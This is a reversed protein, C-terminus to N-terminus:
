GVAAAAARIGTAVVHTRGRAVVALEGLATVVLLRGPGLRAIGTAPSSLTAFPKQRASGIKSAALSQAGICCNADFVLTAADLFVPATPASQVGHGPLASPQSEVTQATEVGVLRTERPPRGHSLATLDSTVVVVRSGDPSWNLV